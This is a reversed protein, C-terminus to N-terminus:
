RETRHLTWYTDLQGLISRTCHGVSDLPTWTSVHDLTARKVRPRQHRRVYEPVPMIRTPNNRFLNRYGHQAQSTLHPYYQTNTSEKKIIITSRRATRPIHCPTVSLDAPGVYRIREVVKGPCVGSCQPCFSRPSFREIATRTKGHRDRKRGATTQHRRNTHM